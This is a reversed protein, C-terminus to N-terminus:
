PRFTRCPANIRTRRTWARAARGTSSRSSARATTADIAELRAPKGNTECIWIRVDGNADRGAVTRRRPIRYIQQACPDDHHAWRACMASRRSRRACRPRRRVDHGSDARSRGASGMRRVPQDVRGRADGRLRDDPARTSATRSSSTSRAPRRRRARGSSARREGRRSFWGRRRRARVRAARGRASGRSVGTM